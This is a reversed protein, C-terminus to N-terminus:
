FEMSSYNQVLYSIVLPLTCVAWLPFFHLGSPRARQVRACNHVPPSVSGRLLYLPHCDHKRSVRSIQCDRVWRDAFRIGSPLIAPTYPIFGTSRYVVCRFSSNQRYLFPDRWRKLFFLGPTDHQVVACSQSFSHLLTWEASMRLLNSARLWRLSMARKRYQGRVLLVAAAPSRLFSTCVIRLKSFRDFSATHRRFKMRYQAVNLYCRNNGLSMLDSNSGM